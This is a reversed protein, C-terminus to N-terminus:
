KFPDLTGWSQAFYGVWPAGLLSSARISEGPPRLFSSLYLGTSEVQQSARAQLCRGGGGQLLLCASDGPGPPKPVRPQIGEGREVTGPESGLETAATLLKLVKRQGKPNPTRWKGRWWAQPGGPLELLESRQPEMEQTQPKYLPGNM